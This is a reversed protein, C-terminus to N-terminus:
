KKTITQNSKKAHCNLHEAFFIVYVEKENWFISYWDQKITKSINETVPKIKDDSIEVRYVHWQKTNAEPHYEINEKVITMEKLITPNNLSELEVIGKYM